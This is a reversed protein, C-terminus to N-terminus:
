MSEGVFVEILAADKQLTAVCPKRRVDESSWRGSGAVTLSPSLSGTASHGTCEDPPVLESQGTWLVWLTGSHGKCEFPSSADESQGIWWGVSICADLSQGTWEEVTIVFESSHGKCGDPTCILM